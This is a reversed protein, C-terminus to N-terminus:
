QQENDPATEGGEAQPTGTAEPQPTAMGIARDVNQGHIAAANKVVEHALNLHDMQMDHGTKTTKTVENLGKLLNAKASQTPQDAPLGLQQLVASQADDPLDTFKIQLSEVLSKPPEQQPQNAQQQAQAVHQAAQQMQQQMLKQLEQQPILLQSFGKLNYQESLYESIKTWDVALPPTGIAKNQEISQNQTLIIEQIFAQAQTIKDQQSLPEMSAEDITLDIDGQMDEPTIKLPVQGDPKMVTVNVDRIMFQQNNSLWMRGIQLMSQMFNEKFFTVVDGAAQQLRMIGTATGKTTDAQDNPLGTAYQSITVGEIAQDFLTLPVQLMDSKPELHRFPVPAVDGRYQILGAPEIVYDDVNAQEPAILMPDYAVNMADQFHNVVDNYAAQLRYTIEYIGEGWFQFGKKKVHFKVLPYKGHWYVNKQERLLVWGHQDKDGSGSEAYTCITGDHEYCEYLKVMRVTKDTPDANTLLRNRARDYAAYTDYSVKGNLVDLNKYIEKGEAENIAELEAIPKYEKIIIWPHDYLNQPASPSIFVNFINVPILDNFGEKITKVNAKSHDIGEGYPDKAKTYVKRNKVNWVVKAMGTGTVIADLLPNFLKDRMSEEFNHNDYDFELKKQIKQAKEAITLDDMDPDRVEVQFGPKLVLFKAMLTWTQQSLKPVYIKSRWPSPVRGIQAYLSDYWDSFRKFMRDQNTQAIAYREKWTEAGQAPDLLDNFKKDSNKAM